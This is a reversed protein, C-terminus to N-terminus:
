RFPVFDFILMFFCLIFDIFLSVKILNKPLFQFLYYCPKGSQLQRFGDVHTTLVSLCPHFTSKAAPNEINTKNQKTKNKVKITNVDYEIVSTKFKHTLM